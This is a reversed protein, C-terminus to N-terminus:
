NPSGVHTVPVWDSTSDDAAEWSVPFILLASVQVMWVLTRNHSDWALVQGLGESM